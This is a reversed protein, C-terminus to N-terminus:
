YEKSVAKGTLFSTQKGEARKAGPAAQQWGTQKTLVPMLAVASLEASSGMKQEDAVKAAASHM